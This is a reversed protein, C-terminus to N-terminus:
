TVHKWTRGAAIQWITPGSVGFQDAIQGHSLEGSSLLNKIQRVETETLIHRGLRKDSLDPRAVHKWHDGSVIEDISKMSICFDAAIDKRYPAADPRALTRRMVELIKEALGLSYMDGSDLWRFYRDSDLAEVM